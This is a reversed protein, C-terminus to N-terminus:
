VFVYAITPKNMVLEVPAACMAAHIICSMDIAIRNIGDKKLDILNTSKTIKKIEGFLGKIAM